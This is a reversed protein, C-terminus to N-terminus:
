RYQHPLRSPQVILQRCSLIPQRLGHLRRPGNARHPAHPLHANDLVRVDEELERGSGSRQGVGPPLGPPPQRERDLLPRLDRAHPRQRRDQVGLMGARRYEPEHRDIENPREHTAIVFGGEDFDHRFLARRGRLERIENVIQPRGIRHLEGADATGRNANASQRRLIGVVLVRDGPV